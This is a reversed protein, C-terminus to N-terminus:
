TSPRTDHHPPRKGHRTPDASRITLVPCAAHRVVAEAISGFLLHSLQGRGHTGMVLLDYGNESAALITHTTEGCELRGRVVIGEEGKLHSLLRQMEASAAGQELAEVVETTPVLLTPAWVPTPLQWVHLVDLEAGFRRALFVAYDVAARSCPSFDVPVLLRRIAYM